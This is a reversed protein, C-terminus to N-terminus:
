RWEIDLAKGIDRKMTTLNIVIARRLEAEDFIWSSVKSKPRVGSSVGQVGGPRYPLFDAGVAFILDDGSDDLPGRFASFIQDGCKAIVTKIHEPAMGLAALEFCVAWKIADVATYKIKQGKGPSSPVLGIRQFHKLRSKFTQLGEGIAGHRLAVARLIDAYRYHPAAPDVVPTGQMQKWADEVTVPWVKWVSQIFRLKERKVHSTL